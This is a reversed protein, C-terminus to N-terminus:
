PNAPHPAAPHYGGRRPSSVGSNSSSRHLSDNSAGFSQNYLPISGSGSRAVGTDYFSDHSSSSYPIPPLPYQPQQYFSQNNSYSNNPMMYMPYQAPPPYYMFHSPPYQGAPLYPPYPPYSGVPMGYYGPNPNSHVSNSSNSRRIQESEKLSALLSNTALNVNQNNEILAQIAQEKTFGLETIVKVDSKRYKFAKQLEREEASKGSRHKSDKEKGKRNRKSDASSPSTDPHNGGGGMFLARIREVSKLKKDLKKPKTKPQDDNSDFEKEFSVNGKTPTQAFGCSCNLLTVYLFLSFL